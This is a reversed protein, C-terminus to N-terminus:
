KVKAILPNDVMFDEILFSFSDFHPISTIRAIIVDNSKNVLENSVVIAPRKKITSLDSFPYPVLIIDRQRYKM